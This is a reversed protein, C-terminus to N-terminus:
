PAEALYEAVLGFGFISPAYEINLGLKLVLSFLGHM